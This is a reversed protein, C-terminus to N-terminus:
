AARVTGDGALLRLLIATAAAPSLLGAEYDRWGLVRGDFVRREDPHDPEVFVLRAGDPRGDLRGPQTLPRIAYDAYADEPRTTAPAVPVEWGSRGPEYLHLRV